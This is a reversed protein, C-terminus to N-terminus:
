DLLDDLLGDLDAVKERVTTMLDDLAPSNKDFELLIRQQRDLVAFVQSESWYFDHEDYFYKSKREFLAVIKGKYEAEFYVFVQSETATTLAKPPTEVSWKVEGMSTERNLKTILKIAKEDVSM